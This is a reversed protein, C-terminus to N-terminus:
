EDPQHYIVEEGEERGLMVPVGEKLKIFVLHANDNSQRYDFAELLNGQQRYGHQFYTGYNLLSTALWKMAYYGYLVYKSPKKHYHAIYQERVLLNEPFLPNEYEQMALWVDLTSILDLNTNKSTLWNGLALIRTSDGRAILASMVEAAIASNDSAVFIHNLSDVAMLLSDRMPLVRVRKGAQWMARLKVSDVVEKAATLRDFIDRATSKTARQMIVVQFSDAEIRQKYHWAALSDTIRPGYFIACAGAKYHGAMFAAAQKGARAAGTRILFAYPNGRIIASNASVPNVFNKRQRYSYNAIVKLPGPYLPGILADFADLSGSNVIGATVTSDRQTDFVKVELQTSDFADLALQMGEYLEVALSKHMYVGSQWLRETFLPLLIAIRYKEKLVTPPVGLGLRASDLRYTIILSDLLSQNREAPPQAVLQGALLGAILTDSPHQALLSALVVQDLQQLYAESLRAAQRQLTDNKILSRYYLAQNPNNEEFYLKNLWLYVEEQQPWAPHQRLLQLWMAKAKGPQGARYAAIGYYYATYAGLPHAPDAQILKNFGQLAEEYRGDALNKKAAEYTQRYDLTQAHAALTAWGFFILWWFILRNM